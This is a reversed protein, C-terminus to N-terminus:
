GKNISNFKFLKPRLLKSNKKTVSPMSFFFALVSSMGEDDVGSGGDTVMPCFTWLESVKTGISCLKNRPYNIIM